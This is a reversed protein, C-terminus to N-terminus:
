RSEAQLLQRRLLGNIPERTKIILKNVDGATECVCVADYPIYVGFKAELEARLVIIGLTHWQNEGFIKTLKTEETIEGTFSDPRYSEVAALVGKLIEVKDM